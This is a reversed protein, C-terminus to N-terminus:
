WEEVCMELGEGKVMDEDLRCYSITIGLRVRLFKGIKAIVSMTRSILIM